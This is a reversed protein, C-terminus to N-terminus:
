KHSYFQVNIDLIKFYLINEQNYNLPKLEYFQILNINLIYSLVKTSDHLVNM